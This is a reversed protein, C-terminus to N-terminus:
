DMTPVWCAYLGSVQECQRQDLSHVATMATIESCCKSLFSCHLFHRHKGVCMSLSCCHFFIHIAEVLAFDFNVFSVVNEYCSIEAFNSLAYNGKWMQLLSFDSLFQLSDWSTNILDRCSEKPTYKYNSCSTRKEVSAWRLALIAIRM